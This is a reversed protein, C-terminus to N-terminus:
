RRHHFWFMALPKAFDMAGSDCHNGINRSHFVMGYFTALPLWCKCCFGSPVRIQERCSGGVHRGFCRFCFGVTHHCQATHFTIGKGLAWCAKFRHLLCICMEFYVYRVKCAGLPLRRIADLELDIRRLRSKLEGFEENPGTFTGLAQISPGDVYGCMIKYKDAATTKPNGIIEAPHNPALDCYGERRVQCNLQM